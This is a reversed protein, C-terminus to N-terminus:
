LPYEPQHPTGGIYTFITAPDKGAWQLIAYKLEAIVSCHSTKDSRFKTVILFVSKVIDYLFKLSILEVLSLISATSFLWKTLTQTDWQSKNYGRDSVMVLVSLTMLSTVPWQRLHLCGLRPYIQSGQPCTHDTRCWANLSIQARNIRYWIFNHIFGTEICCNLKDYGYHLDGSNVFWHSHQNSLRFLLKWLSIVGVAIEPGRNWAGSCM